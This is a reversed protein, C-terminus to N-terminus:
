SRLGLDGRIHHVIERKRFRWVNGDWTLDDLYTGVVSPVVGAISELFIVYSSRAKAQSGNLLVVASTVVHRREPGQGPPPMMSRITNVIEDRSEADAYSTVWRADETFLEALAKWDQDDVYFCYQALLEHIAIKHGISDM